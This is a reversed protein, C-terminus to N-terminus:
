VSYSCFTSQDGVNVQIHISKYKHPGNHKLNKSARCAPQIGTSKLLPHSSGNPSTISQFFAATHASSLSRNWTGSWIFCSFLLERGGLRREWIKISPRDSDTWGHSFFLLSCEQLPCHMYISPPPLRDRKWKGERSQNQTGNSSGHSAKWRLTVNQPSVTIRRKKNEKLNFHKLVYHFYFIRGTHIAQFAFWFNSVHENLPYVVHEHHFIIFM